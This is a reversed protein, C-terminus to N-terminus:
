ELPAGKIILEMDHRDYEHHIGLAHAALLHITLKESWVQQLSIRTIEKGFQSDRDYNIDIM